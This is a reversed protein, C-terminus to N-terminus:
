EGIQGQMYLSDGCVVRKVKIECTMVGFIHYIVFLDDICTQGNFKNGNGHELNYMSEYSLTLTSPCALTINSGSM